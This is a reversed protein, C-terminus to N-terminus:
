QIIELIWGIKQKRQVIFVVIRFILTFTSFRFEKVSISESKKGCLQFWM